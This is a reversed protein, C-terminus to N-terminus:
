VTWVTCQISLVQKGGQLRSKQYSAPLPHGHPWCCGRVKRRDFGHAQLRQHAKRTSSVACTNGCGMAPPILHTRHSLVPLPNESGLAQQGRSKAGTGTQKSIKSQMRENSDLMARLIGIHQTRQIKRPVPSPSGSQGGFRRNEQAVRLSFLPLQARPKRSQLLRCIESMCVCVCM